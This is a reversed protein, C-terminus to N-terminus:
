FVGKPYTLDYVKLPRDLTARCQESPASRALHSLIVKMDSVTKVAFFANSGINVGLTGPHDQCKHCATVLRELARESPACVRLACRKFSQGQGPRGLRQEYNSILNEPLKSLANELQQPTGKFTPCAEGSGDLYFGLSSKSHLYGQCGSERTIAQIIDVERTM